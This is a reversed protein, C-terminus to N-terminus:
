RKILGHSELFFYAGVSVIGILWMLKHVISKGIQEYFQTTIKEVAKEAAREAILNIEDDTLCSPFKRRDHFRQEETEM